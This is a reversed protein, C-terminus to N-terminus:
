KEDSKKKSSLLENEEKLKENEQKLKENEQQLNKIVAVKFADETKADSLQKILHEIVDNVNYRLQNNNM